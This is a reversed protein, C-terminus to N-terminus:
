SRVREKLKFKSHKKLKLSRRLNKKNERLKKFLMKSPKNMKMLGHVKPLPMKEKKRLSKLIKRKNLKSNKLSKKLRKLKLLSKKHASRQLLLKVRSKKLQLSLHLSSPTKRLLWKVSHSMFMKKLLQSKKKTLNKEMSYTNKKKPKRKLLTSNKLHTVRLDTHMKRLLRLKLFAISSNKNKNKLRMTTSKLMTSSIRNRKILNKM